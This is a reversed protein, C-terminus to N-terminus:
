QDATPKPKRTRVARAKGLLVATADNAVRLSVPLLYIAWRKPDAPWSQKAVIAFCEEGSETLAKSAAESLLIRKLGPTALPDNRDTGIERNTGTGSDLSKQSEPVLRAPDTGSSNQSWEPIIPFGQNKLPEM